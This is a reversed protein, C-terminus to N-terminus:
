PASVIGDRNWAFSFRKTAVTTQCATALARLAALLRRRSLSSDDPELLHLRQTLSHPTVRIETHVLRVGIASLARFGKALVNESRPVTVEVVYAGDRRAELVRVGRDPAAPASWRVGSDDPSALHARDPSPAAAALASSSMVFNKLV